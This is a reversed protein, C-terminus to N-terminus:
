LTTSPRPHTHRIQRPKRTDFDHGMWSVRDLEIKESALLAELRESVDLPARVWLEGCPHVHRVGLATLTSGKLIFADTSTSPRSATRHLSAHSRNASALM